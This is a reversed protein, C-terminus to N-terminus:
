PGFPADKEHLKPLGCFKPPRYWSFLTKQKHHGGTRRLMNILNNQTLPRCTDRHMLIEKAKNMCDQRELVVIVVGKDVTLIVRDKDQRLGKLAMAEEKTINPRLHLEYKLVRNIEGRLEEAM